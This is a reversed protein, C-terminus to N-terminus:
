PGPRLALAAGIHVGSPAVASRVGTPGTGSQVADSVQAIADRPQTLNPSAVEYRETMGSPPSVDGEANVAVLHLLRTGAVDLDLSPAAVSTGPSAGVIAGSAVVPSSVDVGRYTVIGGALRRWDSTLAWTYSVPESGGAVKVYVSQRLAGSVSDTRVLSWGSPPPALGPASDNVVISAVM